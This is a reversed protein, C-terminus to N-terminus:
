IRSMGDIDAFASIRAISTPNGTSPKETIPKETVPNGTVSNEASPIDTVLNKGGARLHNKALMSYSKVGYIVYSSLSYVSM